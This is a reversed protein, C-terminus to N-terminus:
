GITILYDGGHNINTFTAGGKSGITATSVYVLSNNKSDYRYLKAVFNAYKEAFKIRVSATAGWAKNEGISIQATSTVDDKAKMVKRLSDPVNKTNYTTNLNIKKATVVDEGYITWTVTKNSKVTLKGGSARLAALQKSSVYSASLTSSSTSSSSSSSTSSSTNKNSTTKDSSSNKKNEEKLQELKMQWYQYYPDNENVTIDDSIVYYGKKGSQPSSYFKGDTTCFWTKSSSYGLSSATGIVQGNRNYVMGGNIYYANDDATTTIGSMAITYSPYPSASTSSYYNGNLFCFYRASSSHASKKYATISYDPDSNCAAAAYQYNPYYLTTEGNSIAYVYDSVYNYSQNYYINVTVPTDYDVSGGGSNGSGSSIAGYQKWESGAYADFSITDEFDPIMMGSLWYFDNNLTHGDKVAYWWSTNSNNFIDLHHVNGWDVLEGDLVLRPFNTFEEDNAVVTRTSSSGVSAESLYAIQYTKIDGTVDGAFLDEDTYTYSLANKIASLIAANALKAAKQEATDSNTTKTYAGNTIITDIYSRYPALANNMITQEEAKIKKMASKLATESNFTLITADGEANAKILYDYKTPAFMLSVGSFSLDPLGLTSTEINNLLESAASVSAFAKAYRMGIGSMYSTMYLKSPIKNTNTSVRTTTSSSSNTGINGNYVGTNFGNTDYTWDVTYDFPDGTWYPDFSSTEAAATVGLASASMLIAAAAAAISKTKKM